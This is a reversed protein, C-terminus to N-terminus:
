REFYHAVTDYFFCGKENLSLSFKVVAIEKLTKSERSFSSISLGPTPLPPIMECVMTGPWPLNFTNVEVKSYNCNVRLPAVEPHTLQHFPLFSLISCLKNFKKHCM